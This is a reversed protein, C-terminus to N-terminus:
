LGYVKACAKAKESTAGHKLYVFDAWVVCARQDHTRIWTHTDVWALLFGFPRVFRDVDMHLPQGEYMPLYEVEVELCLISELAQTAGQLISLESGQTDIKLVDIAPLDNEAIVRDLTDAEVQRRDIVDWFQANPFQDLFARNPQFVSTLGPFRTCYLPLTGPASSLAM